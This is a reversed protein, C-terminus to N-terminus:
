NKLILKKLHPNDHRRKTQSVIITNIYIRLLSCVIEIYENFLIEIFRM